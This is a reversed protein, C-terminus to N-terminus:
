SLEIKKGAEPIIAEIGKEEQIKQRFVQIISKDGHVLLIKEPNWKGIAKLMEQQSAHASFDFKEVKGKVEYTKGDIEIKNTEMLKRGPTGEVQFGTLFVNNKEDMCLKKLYSLVPGGQM